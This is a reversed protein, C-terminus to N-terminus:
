SFHWRGQELDGLPKGDHKSYVGLESQSCSVVHPKTWASEELSMNQQAGVESSKQSKLSM